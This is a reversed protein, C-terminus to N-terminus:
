YREIQALNIFYYVKTLLNYSINNKNQELKSLEVELEKIIDNRENLFNASPEKKLKLKEQELVITKITKLTHLHEEKLPEIKLELPKLKLDKTTDDNKNSFDVNEKIEDKKTFKMILGSVIILPIAIYTLYVGVYSVSMLTIIYLILTTYFVFSAKEYM